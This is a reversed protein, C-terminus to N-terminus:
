FLFIQWLRVVVCYFILLVSPITSSQSRQSCRVQQGFRIVTVSGYRSIHLTKLTCKGFSVKGYNKRVACYIFYLWNVISILIPTPRQQNLKEFAKKPIQFKFSVGCFIFNFKGKFNLPQEWGKTSWQAYM